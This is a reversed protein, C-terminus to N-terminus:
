RWEEILRNCDEIKPKKYKNNLGTIKYAVKRSIAESVINGQDSYRNDWVWKDRETKTEFMYVSWCDSDYSMDIGMYSHGAYYNKM